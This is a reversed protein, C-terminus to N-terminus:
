HPQCLLSYNLEGGGKAYRLLIITLREDEVNMMPKANHNLRFLLHASKEAFLLSVVIPLYVSPIYIRCDIIRSVTIASYMLTSWQPLMNEENINSM